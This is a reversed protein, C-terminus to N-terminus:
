ASLYTIVDLFGWHILLLILSDIGFQARLHRFALQMLNSVTQPAISMVGAIQDRELEQYFKLYIVEKQRPPLTELMQKMAQARERETEEQIYQDEISFTFDFPAVKSEVFEDSLATESGNRHMHRRLSVLLYPKIVVDARLSSRHEWLYLFLDQICDKIFEHDNSFRTGYRFLGRFQDTMITRFASVDGDLFRQWLQQEDAHAGLPNATSASM